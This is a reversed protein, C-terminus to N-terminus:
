MRGATRWQIRPVLAVMKGIGNDPFHFLIRRCRPSKRPGELAMNPTPRRGKLESQDIASNADCLVVNSGLFLASVRKRGM